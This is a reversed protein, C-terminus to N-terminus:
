ENIDIREDAFRLLAEGLEKNSKVNFFIKLRELKTEEIPFSITRMTEKPKYKSVDLTFKQKDIGKLEEVKISKLTSVPSVKETKNYERISIQLARLKPLIESLAYQMEKYIKRYIPHQRDIGDKTTNLPLDNADEADLYIYGRFRAFDNHYAPVRENNLIEDIDDDESDYTSEWGTLDTRNKEIIVRGNAIINWGADKPSPTSVGALIRIKVAGVTMTKIYTKLDIEDSQFLQEAEYAIQEGNVTIIINRNLIEGYSSSIKKKLENINSKWSLYEKLDPTLKKLEIQVGNEMDLEIDEIHFKWIEEGQENKLNIWEEKDMYVNFSDEATRSKVSFSDGIKFISRKMGIGYMGLNKSYRQTHNGFMFAKTEAIEKTMGGCNDRIMFYDQALDYDISIHGENHNEQNRKYADISNDILDLIASEVTVDKTIMNLFFEKSPSSNVKLTDAM